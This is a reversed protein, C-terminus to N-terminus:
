KSRSRRGYGWAGSVLHEDARVGAGARLLPEDAALGAAGGARAAVVRMRAAGRAAHGDLDQSLLALVFALLSLWYWKRLEIQSKRHVLAPNPSPGKSEPGQVEFDGSRGCYWLLSLLYFPLSLTNKLESIWAVSAVCLPHVAFIMAALWGAPVQLRALVRWLLVASTAHLLVNVVHYGAPHDGWALWELWFAVNTLPFDTRFWISGLGLEGTM